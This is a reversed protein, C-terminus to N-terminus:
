APRGFRPWQCPKAIARYRRKITHMASRGDRRPRGETRQPGSPGACVAAISALRLVDTKLVPKAGRTAGAATAPGLRLARTITAASAWFLFRVGELTLQPCTCQCNAIPAICRAAAPASERPRRASTAPQPARLHLAGLEPLLAAHAVLPALRGDGGADLLHSCSSAGGLAARAGAACRRCAAPRPATARICRRRGRCRHCRCLTTWRSRLSRPPPHREMWMRRPCPAQLMLMAAGCIPYAMRLGRRADATHEPQRRRPRTSRMAQVAAARLGAAAQLLAKTEVSCGQGAGGCSGKCAVADMSVCM